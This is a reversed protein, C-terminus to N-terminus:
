RTSRSAVTDGNEAIGQVIGLLTEGDWVGAGSEGLFAPADFTFESATYGRLEGCREERPLAACVVSGAYPENSVKPWAPYANGFWTEGNGIPRLEAVRGDDWDVYARTVHGDALVVHIVPIEPCAVVHSATLMWEPSMVVAAGYTEHVWPNNFDMANGCWSDVRAARAELPDVPLPYPRDPVFSCASLALVLLKM